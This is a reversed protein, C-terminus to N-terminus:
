AALSQLALHEPLFHPLVFRTVLAAAILGAISYLGLQALGPFDSFLLSAFGVVSTLMGLRITPWLRRRWSADDGAGCREAQIFLYISYDVAEGILTVGFGLTLGHVVGFGLAVAAVGALIGSIVPLFGLLLAAVSRYLLLLLTAILLLSLTSLRVAEHEITARAEAAFVGPGSLLLTATPAATDAPQASLAAFDHRIADIALQQGDTDSGLAATELLLLARKGDASVWVGQEARPHSSTDLQDLVQQAEGTPDRAMLDESLLGLPSALLEVSQRLAQTLGVVTFRADTVPGSLEGNAISRFAAETRLKAALQRSLRARTAADAGQISVLMLQSTPGDRLLRVLMRQAATPASPLFASLDATYKARAVLAGAVSIAALWIMLVVMKQRM